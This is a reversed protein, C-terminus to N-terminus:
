IDALYPYNVPNVISEMFIVFNSRASPTIKIVGEKRFGIDKRFNHDRSIRYLGIIVTERDFIITQVTNGSRLREHHRQVELILNIIVGIVGFRSQNQNYFSLMASRVRVLSDLGVLIQEPFDEKILNEFETAPQMSLLRVYRLVTENIAHVGDDELQIFQAQTYYMSQIISMLQEKTRKRNIMEVAVVRHNPILLSYRKTACLHRDISSKSFLISLRKKWHQESYAITKTNHSVLMLNFVTGTDFMDLLPECLDKPLTSFPTNNTNIPRHDEKRKRRYLM